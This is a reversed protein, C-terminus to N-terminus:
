KIDKNGQFQGDYAESEQNEFMIIQAVRAGKEIIISKTAILVGGMEDVAFGPDYVGSTIIGGCRLVSSRHRIFATRNTPLKIGQEFTISYTGPELRYIFKGDTNKIPMLATYDDVITKDAMVIGGNIRKVEKLTLDYGVQAKAGKNNTQLLLEVESANLLM